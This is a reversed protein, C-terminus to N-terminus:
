KSGELLQKERLITLLRAIEKREKKVKNVDREQGTQQALKDHLMRGQIEDLKSQIDSIDSKRLSSVKENVDSKNGM